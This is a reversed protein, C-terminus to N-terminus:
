HSEDEPRGPSSQPLRHDFDSEKAQGQIQSDAGHAQREPQQPRLGAAGPARSRTISSASRRIRTAKSLSWRSASSAPPRRFRPWSSCIKSSASSARPRTKASPLRRRPSLHGPYYGGHNSVLLDHFAPRRSRQRQRRSLQSGHSRCVRAPGKQKGKRKGQSAPNIGNGPQAPPASSKQFFKKKKRPGPEPATRPRGKAPPTAAPRSSPSSRSLQQRPSSPRRRTRSAAIKNKRRRRRRRHGQSPVQGNDPAPGVETQPPTTETTM